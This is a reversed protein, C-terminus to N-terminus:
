IVLSAHSSRDLLKHSVSAELRVNVLTDPELFDLRVNHIFARNGEIRYFSTCLLHYIPAKFQARLKLTSSTLVRRNSDNPNWDSTAKMELAIPVDGVKLRRDPYGAGACRELTTNKWHPALVGILFEEIQNGISQNSSGARVACSKQILGSINIAQTWQNKLEDVLDPPWSAVLELPEIEEWKQLDAYYGRLTNM